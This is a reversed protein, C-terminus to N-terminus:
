YCQLAHVGLLVKFVAARCHGATGDRSISSRSSYTDSPLLRRCLICEWKRTGPGRASCTEAAYGSFFFPACKSAFVCVQPTGGARGHRFRSAFLPLRSVYRVVRARLFTFPRGNGWAACASNIDYRFKECVFAAEPRSSKLRNTSAPDIQRKEPGAMNKVADNTSGHDHSLFRLPM